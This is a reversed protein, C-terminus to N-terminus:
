EVERDKEKCWTKSQMSEKAWQNRGNGGDAEDRKIEPEM